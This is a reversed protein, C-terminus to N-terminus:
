FINLLDAKPKINEKEIFDFNTKNLVGVGKSAMFYVFGLVTVTNTNTM